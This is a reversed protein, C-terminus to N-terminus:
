STNESLGVPKINHKLWRFAINWDIKVPKKVPKRLIQQRAFTRLKTKMM